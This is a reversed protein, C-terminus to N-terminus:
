SRIACPMPPNMDSVPIAPPSGVNPSEGVGKAGLPHHPCPTVTEGLEFEPCELATPILYDMFSSNLCNGEDDFSILEMLAIGIGQSELQTSTRKITLDVIRTVEPKSLEHFVITEDIRNLFEPRFHQKLADNVKEKMKEYSVAEDSKGFGVNAKRLDQTGLNSTRILM